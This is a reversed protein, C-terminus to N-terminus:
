FVADVERYADQTLTILRDKVEGLGESGQVIRELYDAVTMESLDLTYGSDSWIASLKLGGKLVKDSGGNVNARLGAVRNFEIKLPLTLQGIAGFFQDTDFSELTSTVAEALARPDIAPFGQLVAIVPSVDIVGELDSGFAAMQQGPVLALVPAVGIGAMVNVDYNFVGACLHRGRSAAGNLAAGIKLATQQAHTGQLDITTEYAFATGWTLEVGNVVPAPLDAKASHDSAAGLALTIKSEVDNVIVKLTKSNEVGLSNKCAKAEISQGRSFTLEFGQYSSNLNEIGDVIRALAVEFPDISADAPLQALQHRAQTLVADAQDLAATAQDLRDGAAALGAKAATLTGRARDATARVVRLARKAVNLAAARGACFWTCANLNAKAASVRRQAAALAQQAASHTSYAADYLKYASELAATALEVNREAVQLSLRAAELARLADERDLTFEFGTLETFYSRVARSLDAVENLEIGVNDLKHMQMWLGRLLMFDMIGRAADGPTHFRFIQKASSSLAVKGSADTGQPMDPVSAGFSMGRELGLSVEYYPGYDDQKRTIEPTVALQLGGNFIGPPVYPIPIPVEVEGEIKMAITDGDSNLATEFANSFNRSLYETTVQVAQNPPLYTAPDISDPAFGQAQPLPTNLALALLLGLTAYPTTHTSRKM